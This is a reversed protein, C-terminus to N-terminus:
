EDDDDTLELDETDEDSVFDDYGRRGRGRGRGRGGSGRASKRPEGWESADGARKPRNQGKGQSRQYRMGCANCLTRPGTPGERWQPTQARARPPPPPPPHASATEKKACRPVCAPCGLGM